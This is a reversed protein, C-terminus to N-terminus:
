ANQEAGKEVEENAGEASGGAPGQAPPVALCDPGAGPIERYDLQSLCITCSCMGPLFGKRFSNKHGCRPCMTESM